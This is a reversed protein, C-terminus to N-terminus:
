NDKFENSTFNTTFQDYPFYADVISTFANFAQEVRIVPSHSDAFYDDPM